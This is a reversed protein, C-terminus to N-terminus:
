APAHARTRERLALSVGMVAIGRAMLEVAVLTGLLWISSLPWRALLVLGLLVSAVGYALDWGWRPYRDVLSTVGRFLGTAFLWGAILLGSAAMGVGPRVILMAGVVLSLLGSLFPLVFRGLKRLGFAYAMEVIGGVALLAGFAVVTALTTVGAFVFALIGLVFLLVGLIFPGGWAAARARGLAQGSSENMVWRREGPGRFIPMGDRMPVTVDIWEGELDM